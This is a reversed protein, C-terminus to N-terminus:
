ASGGPGRAASEGSIPARLASNKGLFRRVNGQRKDTEYPLIALPSAGERVGRARGRSMRRLMDLIGGIENGWNVEGLEGGRWLERRPGSEIGIAGRVRPLADSM